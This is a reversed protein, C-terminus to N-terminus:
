DARWKYKYDGKPEYSWPMGPAGEQGNWYMKLFEVHGDVFSMMNRADYFQFQSKREHASMGVGGSIEGGLITREPQHVNGLGEEVGATVPNTSGRTQQRIGYNLFYSSNETFPQRYFGMGGAVNTHGLAVFWSGIKVDLNFDDKPCRFVPLNTVAGGPAGLYPMFTRKYTFHNTATLRDGHDAVYVQLALSIQRVNSLCVTTPAIRKPGGAPLLMGALVFMVAIVVLLELLTFGRKMGEL